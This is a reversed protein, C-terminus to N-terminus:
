APANASSLPTNKSPLLTHIGVRVNCNTLFAAAAFPAFACIPLLPGSAIIFAFSPRHNLTIPLLAVIQLNDEQQSLKVKQENYIYQFAWSATAFLM